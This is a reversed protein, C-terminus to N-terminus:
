WNGSQPYSRESIVTSGNIKHKDGHKLNKYTYSFSKQLHNEDTFAYGTYEIDMKDLVQKTISGSGDNNARRWNDLFIAHHKPFYESIKVLILKGRVKFFFNTNACLESETETETEVENRKTEPPNEGCSAAVQRLNDPEQPFKRKTNRLRQTQGFNLIHLFVDGKAPYFRILDAAELKKLWCDVDAVRIDDKRPYVLSKVLIPDANFNGYDDAKMLLRTFLVEEPWNLANITKSDTWDRLIRNAM